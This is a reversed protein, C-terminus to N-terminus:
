PADAHPSMRRRSASPHDLLRDEEHDRDTQWQHEDDLLDRTPAAPERSAVFWGFTRFSVLM